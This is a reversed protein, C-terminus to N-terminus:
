KGEEQAAVTWIRQLPLEARLDADLKEYNALLEAILADQDWLRPKFFQVAEQQYVSNKFGGGPSSCGRSPRSPRATTLRIRSRCAVV